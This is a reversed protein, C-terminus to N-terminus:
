RATWGGDVCLTHGTIYSGADSALLLLAGDLESPEGARGLPTEREIWAKGDPDAFMPGTLETEVYGPALANVRVGKRAWQCALEKTLLTIGGKSTDYALQKNPTSAVLGHVSSINVISGGGQDIMHVGVLRCLVFVATLNVALVERFLAPDEDEARIGGDAIGANNVLIDIRGFREEASEVLAACDEDSSVDTQVPTIGEVEAALADLRDVRRAAAVVQAGANALTRAFRNGLGSSAGTVVAVKGDLRFIGTVDSAEAGSRANM